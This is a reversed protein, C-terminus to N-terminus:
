ASASRLARRGFGLRHRRAQWRFSTDMRHLADLCTQRDDESMEDGRAHALLDIIAAIRKAKTRGLMKLWHDLEADTM